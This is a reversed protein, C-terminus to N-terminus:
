QLAVEGHQSTSHTACDTTQMAQGSHGAFSQAGDAAEGCSGRLPAGGPPLPTADVVPSTGGNEDPGLDSATEFSLGPPNSCHIAARADGAAATSRGSCTEANTTAPIFAGVTGQVGGATQSPLGSAADARHAAQVPCRPVWRLVADSSPMQPRASDADASEEDAIEIDASADEGGADFPANSGWIESGAESPPAQPEEPLESDSGPTALDYFCRAPPRSVASYTVVDYDTYNDPKLRLVSATNNFRVDDAQFQPYDPASFVTVLKGVCM